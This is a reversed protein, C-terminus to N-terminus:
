GAGGHSAAFNDYEAQLADVREHYAQTLCRRVAGCADRRKEWARQDDRQAGNAGMLQVRGLVSLLVSMRVDQDNLLRDLCVERETPTRAARCDFSASRCVTSLCLCFGSAMFLTTLPKM